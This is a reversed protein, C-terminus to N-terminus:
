RRGGEAESAAGSGGGEWVVRLVRGRGAGEGRDVEVEDVLAGVAVPRGRGRGQGQKQEVAPRAGDDLEQADDGREGVGPGVVRRRLGEVDDRGRQGPEAEGLRGPLGAPAEGRHRAAEVAEHCPHQPVLPVANLAAVPARHDRPPHREVKAADRGRRAGEVFDLPKEGRLLQPGARPPLRPPLLLLLLLAQHGGGGGGGRLLVGGGGGGGGARSPAAAASADDGDVLVHRDRGRAEGRRPRHELREVRRERVDRREEDRPVLGLPEAPQQDVLGPLAAVELDLARLRHRQPVPQAVRGDRRQGPNRYPLSFLSLSLSLSVLKKKKEKKAKTM